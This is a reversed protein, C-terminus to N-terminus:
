RDAWPIEQQVRALSAGLAARSSLFDAKNFVEITIVGSYQRALLLRTVRDLEAPALGALSAHDREGVGHIHVVRTRSLCRELFPLPDQKDLWLHGIDVCRSAPVRDLVSDWFEPPYGELNEVALLRLDGAWGAVIELSRVAQEVWKRFLIPNLNEKVERGDLHLVYARPSIDRISEIVRQAKRISIHGEDGDTGLRLDLPLHVTYTLSHDLSLQRLEKM